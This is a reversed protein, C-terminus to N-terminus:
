DNAQEVAKPAVAKMLLTAQTLVRKGYKAMLDCCIEEMQHAELDASDVCLEHLYAHTLEHAMVEFNAHGNPLFITRRHTDTLGLTNKGFRKTFRSVPLLKIQWEHGLIDATFTKM